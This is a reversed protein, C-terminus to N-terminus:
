NVVCLLEGADVFGVVFDEAQPKFTFKYHCSNNSFKVVSHMEMSTLKIPLFIDGYAGVFFESGEYDFSSGFGLKENNQDYLTAKLYLIRNADINVASLRESLPRLRASQQNLEIRGKGKAQAGASPTFALSQSQFSGNLPVIAKGDGNVTVGNIVVDEGLSGAVNVLAQTRAMDAGLVFSAGDNVVTGSLGGSWSSINPSYYGSLHSQTYRGTHFFGASIRQQETNNLEHAAAINYSSRNISRTFEMGINEDNGTSSYRGSLTGSGEDFLHSLPLNLSLYFNTDASGMQNFTRSVNLSYNLPGLYGGYGLTYNTTRKHSHWYEDSSFSFSLTNDFYPIRSTFSALYRNKIKNPQLRSYAQSEMAESFSYYNETSYRYGALQLNAMQNVYKSYTLSFSHGLESGTDQHQFLSNSVNASFAGFTGLSFASGISANTYNKAILVNVSPTGWHFGRAYDAQLFYANIDKIGSRPEYMGLNIQYDYADPTLLGPVYTNEFYSIQETGDQEQVVIRLRQNSLGSLSDITFSGAAVSKTLLLRDSQYVYVTANTNAVGTISPTYYRQQRSKLGDVSRLSAGKFAFGEIYQGNLNLEGAIFESEFQPLIKSFSLQEFEIGDEFLDSSYMSANVLYDDGFTWLLRGNFPATHTVKGNKKYGVVNANYMMRLAPLGVTFPEEVQITGILYRENTWIALQSKQRSLQVSYLHGSYSPDVGNSLEDLLSSAVRKNLRGILEQPLSLRGDQDVLYYNGLSENNLKVEYIATLPKLVEKLAVGNSNGFVFSTNFEAEQEYEVELEYDYDQNVLSVDNEAACVSVSFLIM